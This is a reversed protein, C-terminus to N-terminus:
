WKEVSLNDVLGFHPDRTVLTLSYQQAIAAIWIDNEPIPQGKEKLRNKVDGYRKATDINCLLVANNRAFDDIRALNEQVRLSKYAGFFLEGIAICPILIEEARTIREHVIPDQALLAIIINTDLLFRGNV